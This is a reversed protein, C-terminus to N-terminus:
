VTQPQLARKRRVVKEVPQPAQPLIYSNSETVTINSGIITVNTLGDPVINGSGMILCNTVNKGIENGSGTIQVFKSGSQVTNANGNVTCNSTGNQVTNAAGTILHYAGHIINNFGNVTINNSPLILNDRGTIISYDSSHVTNNHGVILTSGANNNGGTVHGGEGIILTYPSNIKAGKGLTLTNSITYIKNPKFRTGTNNSNSGKFVIKNM